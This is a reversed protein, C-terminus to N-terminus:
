FEESVFTVTQEIQTENGQADIARAILLNPGANITITTSFSGDATPEAVVDAQNSSIIVTNGPNTKGKISITRTDTIAEKTPESITIYLQNEDPTPTAEFPLNNSPTNPRNANQTSPTQFSQYLLYGVTTFVLGIIVAVFVIIIREKM